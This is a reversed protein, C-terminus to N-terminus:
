EVVVKKTFIKNNNTVKLFYMGSNLEDSNLILKNGSFFQTMVIKGTADFIVLQANNMNEKMVIEFTHHVPNPAVIFQESSGTNETIGTPTTYCIDLRPHLSADIHDSSAFMMTCYYQETQLRLMFGFSQSPNNLMDQVLATVDINPYDQTNSTSAPLAVENITTTTPQTDWTVTNELWPSTIRQLWCANSATLQSHGGNPATPNWFLSLSASTLSAGAPIMSLDFNLLGRLNSENGGNTWALATFEESSGLNMTNYGCPVCSAISADQGDSCSSNGPQLTLCTTTSTDIFSIELKPRLASNIHDSSAFMMTRYHQETQLKLMFGFSQSPNDVMDQVLATVDINPYDQNNSTSAPLSVENTVTTTPQTDWTVTNESWSSTIRQLFCANSGSLQSHGGNPATPNWYLSLSANTIVAGPPIMSIDFNLLGRLDSENGGNTWALATFEETSGLNMTNYGCPVCSAISADNGICPDPQLIITTIQASLPNLWFLFALSLLKTKM